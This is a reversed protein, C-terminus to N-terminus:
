GLNRSYLIWCKFLNVLGAGGLNDPKQPTKLQFFDSQVEYSKYKTAWKTKCNGGFGQIGATVHQNRHWDHNMLHHHRAAFSAACMVAFGGPKVYLMWSPLIPLHPAAVDTTDSGRWTQKTKRSPNNTEECMHIICLFRCPPTRGWNQADHCALAEEWINISVSDM